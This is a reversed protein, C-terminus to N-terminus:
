IEELSIKQLAVMEEYPDRANSVASIVAINNCGTGKMSMINGRDIGGIAVVPHRSEASIKKLADVGTVMDPDEKSATFFVPGFGIYDVDQDQADIVQESNHTSLGILVNDGLLRRAQVPPIDNRGIHLGDAGSLMAIDPRDNVIFVTSTGATIERVALAHSLFRSADFGKYRLQLVPICASVAMRALEEYGMPPDTMILYLGKKIEPKNYMLIKKDIKYLEYRLSKMKQSAGADDLKFMEELVRLGEQARKMNSRLIDKLGERKYELDGVSSFGIDSAADRYPIFRQQDSDSAVRHRLDKLAQQIGPDDHCYRFIDEIVRLGETVRNINADIVRFTKGSRM